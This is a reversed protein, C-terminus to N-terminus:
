TCHMGLRSRSPQGLCVLVSEITDPRALRLILAVADHLCEAYPIRFGSASFALARGVREDHEAKRLYLIARYGKGRTWERAFPPSAAARSRIM